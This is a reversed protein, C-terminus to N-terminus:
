ITTAIFFCKSDLKLVSKVGELDKKEFELFNSSSGQEVFYSQSNDSFEFSIMRQHFQSICRSVHNVCLNEDNSPLDLKKKRTPTM